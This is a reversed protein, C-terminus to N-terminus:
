TDQGKNEVAIILFGFLNKPICKPHQDQLVELHDHQVKKGM